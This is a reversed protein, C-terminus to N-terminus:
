AAEKVEIIQQIFTDTTIPVYVKNSSVVNGSSDQLQILQIESVRDAPVMYELYLLNGRVEKVSFTTIEISDNLVLKTARQLIFGAVDTLFTPEIM